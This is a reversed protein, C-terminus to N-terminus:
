GRAEIRRSTAFQKAGSEPPINLYHLTERAVRRFVPAAVTGGYYAGQPEDIVVVIALRPKEAPTFGIFSAMYKSKSYIGNEDLKRATGTKGCVTYGELAANVGTGGENIVTKMIARVTRATQISIVRRVKQPQLQKLPEHNQDTIAQVFYPKM